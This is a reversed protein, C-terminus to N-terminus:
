CILYISTEEHTPCKTHAEHPHLPNSPANIRIRNTEQTTNFTKKTKHTEKTTIYTM